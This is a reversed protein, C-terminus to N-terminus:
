ESEDTDTEVADAPPINNGGMVKIAEVALEADFQAKVVSEIATYKDARVMLELNKKGAESAVEPDVELMFGTFREDTLLVVGKMVAKNPFRSAYIAKGNYESPSNEDTCEVRVRYGDTVFEGPTTETKAAEIHLVNM